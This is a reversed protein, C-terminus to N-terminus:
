EEKDNKLSTRANTPDMGRRVGPLTLITRGGERVELTSVADVPVADPPNEGEPSVFVSTSVREGGTRSATFEFSVAEGADLETEREVRRVFRLRAPVTPSAEYVDFVVRVRICPIIEGEFIPLRNVVSVRATQGAALSHLGYLTARIRSDSNTQAQAGVSFAVLFGFALAGLALANIYKRYSNM